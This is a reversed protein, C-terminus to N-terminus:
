CVDKYSGVAPRIDLTIYLLLLIKGQKVKIHLICSYHKTKGSGASVNSM